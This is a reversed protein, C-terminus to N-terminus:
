IVSSSKVTQEEIGEINLINEDFALIAERRMAEECYPRALGEEALARIGDELTIIDLLRGRGSM